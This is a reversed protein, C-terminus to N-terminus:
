PQEENTDPGRETPELNPTPMFQQECIECSWFRTRAGAHNDYEYLRVVEHECKHVSM